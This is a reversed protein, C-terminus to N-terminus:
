CDLEKNTIKKFEKTFFDVDETYLDDILSGVYRNLYEFRISKYLGRKYREHKPLFKNYVLCFIFRYEKKSISLDSLLLDFEKKGDVIKDEIEKKDPKKENKFEICFINDQYIFLADFSKPRKNSDPYREEVIKDFNIVSQTEDKCLEYNNSSDFSTEKFTSKYKSYEKLFQSIDAM